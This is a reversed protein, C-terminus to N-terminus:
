HNIWAPTFMQVGATNTSCIWYDPATVGLTVNSPAVNTKLVGFGNTLNLTGAISFSNTTAEFVEDADVFAGAATKYYARFKSSYPRIMSATTGDDQILGPYTALIHQSVYTTRAVLPTNADGFIRIGGSAALQKDASPRFPGLGLKDLISQAIIYHGLSNPHTQNDICWPRPNPFLTNVDIIYSPIPSTLIQNNLDQRVAEQSQNGTSAYADTITFAVVKFGNTKAMTWYNTLAAFTTAASQGSSWDNIGCWAFLLCNTTSSYYPLIQAAFRGSMQPITSGAVAANTVFTYHGNTLFTNSLWYVLNINTILYGSMLSDGDFYLRVPASNSVYTASGATTASVASGGISLGAATGTLGSGNGYLATRFVAGTLTISSKTADSPGIDITDSTSNTIGNGIIWMREGPNSLLNSRGGLIYAIEKTNDGVDISNYRGGLIVGYKIGTPISNSSGGLIASYESGSILNGVGWTLDYAAFSDTIKNEKGVLISSFSAANTNNRGTGIFTYTKTAQNSGGGGIFSWDGSAVEWDNSRWGQFDTAQKGRANGNNPAYANTGRVIPGRIDLAQADNSFVNQGTFVNNGNTSAPYVTAGFASLAMALLATLTALYKM